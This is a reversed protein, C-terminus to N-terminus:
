LLLETKRVGLFVLNGAFDEKGPLNINTLIAGKWYLFDALYLIEDLALFDQKEKGCHKSGLLMEITMAKQVSCAAIVYLEELM